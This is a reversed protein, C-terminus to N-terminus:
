VSEKEMAGELSLQGNEEFGELKPLEELSSIGFVRLFEKTTRYLIPRGPVALRGAEEILGRDTLQGLTYSCDLGRLQEVYVKTVPQSYAVVSLVELASPSLRQPRSRELVARVATAYEPSSVLQYAGDLNLLRIGRKQSLYSESLSEALTQLAEVPMALKTCLQEESVPEGAAFLVAELQGLREIDEM